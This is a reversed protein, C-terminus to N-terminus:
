NNEIFKIKNFAVKMVQINKYRLILDDSIGNKIFLEFDKNAFKTDIIVRGTIIFYILRTLAYTEHEITYNKFGGVINLKHDNLSGKFDTNDSTLTSNKSKVLGFDSVKVVLLDNDYKKLLINTTSIDRHWGINQHIYEFARFIQNIIGVRQSLSLKTNNQEIYKFLTIDAYEMIYSNDDQKYNYVELIYPSNAKKMTEFEIKFRELEKENLNKNAKKIAFYKNYFEDKYKLVKAYSGEGILKTEFNYNEIKITSEIYFIPEIEILEIPQFDEPISSGGYNSLFKSSENITNKYRDAITYPCKYNKLANALMKYYKIIEILYRSDEANYHRNYLKHNMFEFSSNFSFHFYAFLHALTKPHVNEYFALYNGYQGINTKEMCIKYIRNILSEINLDQINILKLDKAIDFIISNEITALVEQVFVRKSNSSVIQEECNIGFAFLYNKIDILQMEEQLKYAIENILNVREQPKM